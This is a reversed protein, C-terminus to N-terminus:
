NPASGNSVISWAGDTRISQIARTHGQTNIISTALLIDLVMFLTSTEPFGDPQPDENLVTWNLRSNPIRPNPICLSSEGVTDNNYNVLITLKCTFDIYPLADSDMLLPYTLNKTPIQGSLYMYNHTTADLTMNILVPSACVVRHDMVPMPGRLRRLKARQAEEEFPLFARFTPGTDHWVGWHAESSDSLEAFTWSAAPPMSWFADGNSSTDNLINVNTSNSRQTFTGNAFDSLFITSLFQCAATVLVETLVLVYVFRPVHPQFNTATWLNSPAVKVARLMSYFPGHLLPIGATELVIGAILATIVGAQFSVVTRISTTCVTVLRTEWGANVVRAWYTALEAGDIAKISDHWFLALLTVALLLLLFGIFVTLVSATDVRQWTSRPKRYRQEDEAESNLADLPVYETAGGSTM